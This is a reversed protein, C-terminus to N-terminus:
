FADAPIVTFKGGSSAAINAGIQKAAADTGFFVVNIAKNPRQQGARNGPRFAWDDVATKLRDGVLLYIIDPKARLARVIAPLPKGMGSASKANIWDTAKHISASDAALFDSSLADTKDGYFLVNFRQAPKLGTISRELQVHVQGTVAIMGGSYDAIYYISRNVAPQIGPVPPASTSPNISANPMANPAANYAPYCEAIRKLMLERQLGTSKSLVRFYEMIAHRHIRDRRLSSSQSEGFDWWRDGLTAWPADASKAALDDAALKGVETDPSQALLPLGSTWQSRVFCYYSGVRLNLPQITRSRRSRRWILRKIAADEKKLEELQDTRKKLM